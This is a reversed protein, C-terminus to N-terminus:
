EVTDALSQVPMAVGAKLAGYEEASLASPAADQETGNQGAATQSAPVNGTNEAGGRSCGAAAGLLLAILVILAFIRM